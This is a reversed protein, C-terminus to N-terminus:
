KNKGCHLAGAAEAGLLLGILAEYKMRLLLEEKQYEDTLLSEQNIIVYGLQELQRKQTGDLERSGFCIRVQGEKEQIGQNKGVAFAAPAGQELIGEELQLRVSAQQGPSLSGAGDGEPGEPFRLVLLESEGIGLQRLAPQNMYYTETAGRVQIGYVKELYEKSLTHYSISYEQGQYQVTTTHEQQFSAAVFDELDRLKSMDKRSGSVVYEVPSGVQRYLTVGRFVATGWFGMSAIAALLAIKVADRQKRATLFRKWWSM